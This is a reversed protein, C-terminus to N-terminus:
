ALLGILIGAATASGIVGAVNPGMAHMLLHSGPNEKQGIKQVVRSAMPVASVGAAGIMPNIKGKSLKYFIQGFLTGGATATAFAFVGLLLVKLTEIQIFTNGTMLFGIGLGLMITAIDMLARGGTDSLRDMVGSVQFLNGLMLMGVLPLADPVLLGVIITVGIPFVIKELQSVERMKGMKIKRQKKTTLAKIIPPQIIPVLAMYSYASVTVAAIIEPREGVLRTAAYIATPGDAGGIIGISAAANLDFGLIIALGLALFIGVQAAAGLIFTKPNALLPSFDTMTGIGLFIILPIIGTAILEKYVIYMLGPGIDASPGATIGTLPLNALIVAFGIPGLLLPEMKKAIGLYILLLGVGIMVLSQWTLALLGIEFM